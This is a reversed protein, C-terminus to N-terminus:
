YLAHGTAKKNLKNSIILLVTGLVSQFLGSATALGYNVQSGFAMRYTYTHLVDSVSYTSPMYLILVKDWGVMLVTGVALTLQMMCIPILAPIVIHRIRQWRNAGDLAAAEILEGNINALATSQVISSWGMGMWVNMIAFVIWFVPIQSNAMWNQIPLGFLKNLLLTIAGDRDLFQQVLNCVVVTSIFNPIYSILQAFRKFPICKCESFLIALIVPPFFGLVLNLVAMVATNRLALWFDTGSFLQVFNALGVWDSHFWGKRVSYDEFAMLIGTMPIYNFIILYVAIPVFLLYIMKNKMFDKKWPVKAAIQIDSIERQRKRKSM